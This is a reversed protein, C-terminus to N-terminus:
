CPNAPIPTRTVLKFTAVGLSTQKTFEYGASVWLCIKIAIMLASFTSTRSFIIHCYLQQSYTAYLQSSVSTRQLPHHYPRCKIPQIKRPYQVGARVDRPIRIVGFSPPKVYQHCRLLSTLVCVACYGQLVFANVCVSPSVANRDPYWQRSATHVVSGCNSYTCFQSVKPPM